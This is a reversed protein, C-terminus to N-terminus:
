TRIRIVHCALRGTNAEMKIPQNLHFYSPTPTPLLSSFSFSISHWSSLSLPSPFHISALFLVVDCMFSHERYSLSLVFAYVVICVCESLARRISLAYDPISKLSPSRVQDEIPGVYHLINRGDFATVHMCAVDANAQLNASTGSGTARTGRRATLATTTTITTPTTTPTPTSTFFETLLHM